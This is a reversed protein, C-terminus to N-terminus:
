LSVEYNNNYRKPAVFPAYYKTGYSSKAAEYKKVADVLEKLSQKVIEMKNDRISNRVFRTIDVKLDESKNWGRLFLQNKSEKFEPFESLGITLGRSSQFTNKKLFETVVPSQELIQFECACEAPVLSYKLYTKKTTATDVGLLAASLLALVKEQQLTM